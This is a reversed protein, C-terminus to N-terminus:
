FAHYPIDKKYQKEKMDARICLIHPAGYKVVQLVQGRLVDAINFKPCPFEPDDTM